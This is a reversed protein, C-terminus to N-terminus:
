EKKDGEEKKPYADPIKPFMSGGTQVGTLDDKSTLKFSAYYNANEKRLAIAEDPSTYFKLPQLTPKQIYLENLNNQNTEFTNKTM